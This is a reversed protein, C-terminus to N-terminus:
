YIEMQLYAIPVDQLRQGPFVLAYEQRKLM